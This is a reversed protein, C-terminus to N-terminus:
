DNGANPVHISIRSLGHLQCFASDNGANPVHISITGPVFLRYGYDDNGANPVHISITYNGDDWRNSKTTGQM